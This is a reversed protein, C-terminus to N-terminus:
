GSASGVLITGAPTTFQILDPSEATGTHNANAQELVYRLTGTNEVGVSVDLLNDVTYITPTLRDELLEFLPRAFRQLRRSKTTRVHARQRNRGVFRRLWLQLM